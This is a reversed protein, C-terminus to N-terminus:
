ETTVIISLNAAATHSLHLCIQLGYKLGFVSAYKKFKFNLQTEKREM